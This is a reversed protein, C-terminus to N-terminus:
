ETREPRMYIWAGNMLAYILTGILWGWAFTMDDGRM